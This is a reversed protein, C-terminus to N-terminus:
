ADSFIAERKEFKAMAAERTNASTLIRGQIEAELQLAEADTLRWAENILKKGGRIADPSMRAIAGALESAAADPDESVDTVLGLPLSEAGSLIRGTFVLAKVKDLPMIDRLTTTIALDPILGWHIEMISLKADPAAIRMDAGLAIQLGGGLTNGKIACIVPVDLERWVYAPKQFFNANSDPLKRLLAPDIDGGQFVSVDMGACFHDGDARLVVARVSRDKKISEGAASIAKFMDFDLANQKEARSLTVTAVHNEITTIVRESM